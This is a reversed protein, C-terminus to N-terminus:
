VVGKVIREFDALAAERDEPTATRISGTLTVEDPVINDATGGHITGFGFIMSQSGSILMGAMM